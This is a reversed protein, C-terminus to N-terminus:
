VGFRPHQKLFDSLLVVVIIHVMSGTAAPVVTSYKRSDHPQFVTPFLDKPQCVCSLASSSCDAAACTSIKPSSCVPEDPTHALCFVFHCGFIHVFVRAMTNDFMVGWRVCGLAWFSGSSSKSHKSLTCTVCSVWAHTDGGVESLSYHREHARLLNEWPSNLLYTM